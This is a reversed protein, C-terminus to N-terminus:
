VGVARAWWVNLVVDWGLADELERHLGVEVIRDDDPAFPRKADPVGLLPGLSDIAPKWLNAWNRAPSVHFEIDLRIPGELPERPAATACGSRVAEKWARTATSVTTRVSMDPPRASSSHTAPQVGVTSIGSHRKEGFVADFRAAGLRRAIPFLYNDLDGGGATLSKSAPLGVVLELALHQDSGALALTQSVKDLYATLRIQDPDDGANWSEVVPAVDLAVGCGEPRVFM